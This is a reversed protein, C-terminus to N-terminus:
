PAALSFAALEAVWEDRRALAQEVEEQGASGLRTSFVLVRTSEGPNGVV